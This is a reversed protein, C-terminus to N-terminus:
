RRYPFYSSKSEVGSKAGGCQEVFRTLLQFSQVAQIQLYRMCFGAEIFASNWQRVQCVELRLAPLHDGHLGRHAGAADGVHRQAAFELGFTIEPDNESELVYDGRPDGFLGSGACRVREDHFVSRSPVRNCLSPLAREGPPRVCASVEIARLPYERSQGGHGFPGTPVSESVGCLAYERTVGPVLSRDLGPPRAASAHVLRDGSQEPGALSSFEFSNIASM